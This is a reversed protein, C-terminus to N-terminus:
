RVRAPEFGKRYSRRVITRNAEAHNKFELHARDWQLVQGPYKAAKVALLGPETCRLGVEFPCWLHPTDIGLAKDVWAHWHNFQEYEPLGPWLMGDTMQGERWIELPGAPALVLTGGECVVITLIGDPWEGEGIGIQARDPKLNSDYFHFNCTTNAFNDSRVAYTLTSLVRDAHFYSLDRSPTRSCVLRPSDLEPFAYFLVDTLHVVWDAIQGGGYKWWSRWQRQVMNPRCPEEEAGCLWLDYDFGEPPDIPDGLVGDAFYHGGNLAGGGFAVHVEIVKGLEGSKLIDVAARRPAHAIRQAGTQTQLEPRAAVARRLLELEELEHVLPKQGYVHKGHALAMTMISCHSHDPTAVIVGDFKDGHKDFAERYDACTFADPHDEAAKALSLADVDCLGVIEAQPHAAIQSRDAGGITGIVGISLVRLKTEHRTPTPTPQVGLALSTGAFAAVGTAASTQLFSRRTVTKANM